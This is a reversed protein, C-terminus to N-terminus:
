STTEKYNSKEDAARKGEEIELSEPFVKLPLRLMKIGKTM